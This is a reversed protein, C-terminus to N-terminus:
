REHSKAYHALNRLFRWAFNAAEGPGRLHRAYFRECELWAAQNGASALVRCRGNIARHAFRRFEGDTLRLHRKLLPELRYYEAWDQGTERMVAGASAAHKRFAALALPSFHTPCNFFIRGWMEVDLLYAFDRRFGGCREYVERRVVVASCQVPMGRLFFRRARATAEPGSLDVTPGEIVGQATVFHSRFAIAEVPEAAAVRQLEAYFGPYVYDDAHLIHVWQGRALELCRNWNGGIGLRQANRHFAVRGGGVGCVMPEPDVRDSADDVVVIEMQDAPWAEVIASELTQRLFDTHNFVPVMVSVIPRPGPATM